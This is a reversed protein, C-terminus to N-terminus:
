GPNRRRRIEFPIGVLATIVFGQAATFVFGVIRGISFHGGTAMSIILFCASAAVAAIASARMFDKIKWHTLIGFIAIIALNIAVRFVEDSM